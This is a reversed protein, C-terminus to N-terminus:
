GSHFEFLVLRTGPGTWELVIPAARRVDQILTDAENTRHSLVFWVRRYNNKAAPELLEEPRNEPSVSFVPIDSSILTPAYFEFSRLSWAGFALADGEEYEERVVELAGRMDSNARPEIVTVLAPPILLTVLLLGVLGARVPKGRRCLVDLATAIIFFVIPILFILQRTRFPYLQFASVALATLIAGLAVMALRQRSVVVAISSFVLLLALVWGLPDSIAGLDTGAPGLTRFSLETLGSLSRPYWLIEAMSSPPFPAFSDGWQAILRGRDSGAELLYAGQIAAGAAWAPGVAMVQRYRSRRVAEYLLLVSASAAVLVGPFSGTIGIGGVVAILPTGYRAERYSLVTVMALAVLADSSYQKFESSYYVLIPSFALLGVFAARAPTSSLARRALLVALLVLLVGAVLPTIRLVWDHPGLAVVTARTAALFGPPGNQNHALPETLLTGLDRSVVSLAFAAEDIWMSRNYLYQRVRLAVGIVALAAPFGRYIWTVNPRWSDTLPSASAFTARGDSENHERAPTM